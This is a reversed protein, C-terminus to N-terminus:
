EARWWPAPAPALAPKFSPGEGSGMRSRRDSLGKGYPLLTSRTSICSVSMRCAGISHSPPCCGYIFPCPILVVRTIEQREPYADKGKDGQNCNEDRKKCCWCKQELSHVLKM